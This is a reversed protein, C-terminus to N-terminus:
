FNLIHVPLNGPGEAVASLYEAVIPVSGLSDILRLRGSIRDEVGTMCFHLAVEVMGGAASREGFDRGDEFIDRGFFAAAFENRRM